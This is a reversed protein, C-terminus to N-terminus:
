RAGPKASKSDDKVRPFVASVFVPMGYKDIQRKFNEAEKVSVKYQSFAAVFRQGMGAAILEPSPSNLRKREEPPISAYIRALVQSHMYDQAMCAELGETFASSLMHTRYCADLFKLVGPSGERRHLIALRTAADKINAVHNWTEKAVAPGTGSIGAGACALLAYAFRTRSSFRKAPTKESGNM